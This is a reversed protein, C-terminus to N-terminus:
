ASSTQQQIAFDAMDPELRGTNSVSKSVAAAAPRILGLKRAASNAPKPPLGNPLYTM